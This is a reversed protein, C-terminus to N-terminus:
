RDSILDLEIRKDIRPISQVWFPSLKIDVSQVGPLGELYSEAEEKSRSALKDRLTDLSFTPITTHTVRVTMHGVATDWDIDDISKTFSIEGPFLMHNEDLRDELAAKLRDQLQSQQFAMVRIRVDATFPIADQQDGEAIATDFNTLDASWSEDLISWGNALQAQISGKVQDRAMAAAQERAASLDEARVVKVEDGSGGAIPQTVEAYVLKQSDEDLAAFNLRGSDVNGQPGAEDAEVPVPISSNAPVFAPTQMYFLTGDDTVLRSQDKIKQEDVTRNVISVTGSAKEGVFQTSQFQAVVDV